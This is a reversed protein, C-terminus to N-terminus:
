VLVVVPHLLADARREAIAVLGGAQDLLRVEGSSGDVWAAHGGGAIGTM